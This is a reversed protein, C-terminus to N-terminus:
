PQWLHHPCDVFFDDEPIVVWLRLPATGTATEMETVRFFSWLNKEGKPNSIVSASGWDVWKRLDPDYEVSQLGM